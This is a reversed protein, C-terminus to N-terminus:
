GLPTEVVLRCRDGRVVGRNMVATGAATHIVQEVYLGPSHAGCELLSADEPSVTRPDITQHAPRAPVRLPSGTMLSIRDPESSQWALVTTPARSAMDINLGV